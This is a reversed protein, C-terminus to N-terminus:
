AACYVLLIPPQLCHLQKSLLLSLSSLSLFCSFVRTVWLPRTTLAMLPSTDALPSIFLFSCFQIQCMYDDTSCHYYGNYIFFCKRGSFPKKAQM